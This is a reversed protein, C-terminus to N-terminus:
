AKKKKKKKKQQDRQSLGFNNHRQTHAHLTIVINLSAPLHVSFSTISRTIASCCAGTPPMATKSCQSILMAGILM